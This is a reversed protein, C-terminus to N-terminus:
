FSLGRPVQIFMQQLTARNAQWFGGNYKFFILGLAFLGICIVVYAIPSDFYSKFERKAITLTASM